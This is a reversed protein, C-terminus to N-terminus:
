EDQEVERNERLLEDVTVGFYDAVAKARSVSPSKTDWNRITGNGLHLARELAALSTGAKECLRKINAVIM